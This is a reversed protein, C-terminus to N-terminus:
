LLLLIAVDDSGWLSPVGRQTIQQYLWTKRAYQLHDIIFSDFVLSTNNLQYLAIEKRRTTSEILLYFASLFNAAILNDSMLLNNSQKNSYYKCLFCLIRRMLMMQVATLSTSKVYAILLKPLEKPLSDSPFKNSRGCRKSGSCCSFSICLATLVILTAGLQSSMISAFNTAPFLISTSVSPM